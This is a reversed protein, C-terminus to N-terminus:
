KRCIVVHNSNAAELAAIKIKLDDIKRVLAALFLEDKDDELTTAEMIAKLKRREARLSSKGGVQSPMSLDSFVCM